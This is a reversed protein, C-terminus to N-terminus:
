CLPPQYNLNFYNQTQFKSDIEDRGYMPARGPPPHLPAQLHCCLDCAAQVQSLKRAMMRRTLTPGGDLDGSRVPNKVASVRVDVPPVQIIGCVEGGGWM